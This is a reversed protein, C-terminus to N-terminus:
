QAVETALARLLTAAHAIAHMARNDQAHVDRLRSEARDLNGILIDQLTNTAVLNRYLITMRRVAHIDIADPTPDSKTKNM